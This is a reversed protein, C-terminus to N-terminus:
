WFMDGSLRGSIHGSLGGYRDRALSGYMHVALRRPTNGAVGVSRLGSM